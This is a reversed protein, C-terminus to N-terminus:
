LEWIIPALKTVGVRAVSSALRKERASAKKVVYPLMVSFGKTVGYAKRPDTPRAYSPNPGFKVIGHARLWTLAKHAGPPRRRHKRGVKRALETLLDQRTMPGRLLLLAFLGLTYGRKRDRDERVQNVMATILLRHHRMWEAIAKRRAIRGAEGVVHEAVDWWQENKAPEPVPMDKFPEAEALAPEIRLTRTGIKSQIVGARLIQGFAPTPTLLGDPPAKVMKLKELQAVMKRTLKKARRGERRFLDVDFPLSQASNELIGLCMALLAPHKDPPWRQARLAKALDAGAIKNKIQEREREPATEAKLNEFTWSM